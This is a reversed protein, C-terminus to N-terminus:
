LAGAYVSLVIASLLLVVVIIGIVLLTTRANTENTQDPAFVGLKHKRMYNMEALLDDNGKAPPILPVIRGYGRGGKVSM